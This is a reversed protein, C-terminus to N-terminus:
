RKVALSLGDAVPILSFDIRDDAQMKKTLERIAVTTEENNSADATRGGWLVNDILILGRQRLLTLCREYYEGYNEKDADIFAIDFTGSQGDAILADLSEVAPGIRLDIKGAIGASEWHRQGVAPMEADIDCAVLLGDEPLALAVVLASYGTFTGVEIARKAGILNVLLSMFQGQDPSIQMIAGPLDVTEDRLAKLQPGDRLTSDLIYDYVNEPIYENKSSM